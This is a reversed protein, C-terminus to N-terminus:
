LGTLVVLAFVAYAATLAAGAGRGLTGSRGLVVVVLPLAAALAAPAVLGDVQLPAVVAAAGLTLTANYVASGVVAAVAVLTAM